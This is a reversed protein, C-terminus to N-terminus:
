QLHSDDSKDTLFGRISLNLATEDLSVPNLGVFGKLKNIEGGALFSIWL